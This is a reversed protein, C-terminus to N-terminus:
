AHGLSLRGPLAAAGQNLLVGTLLAYIMKSVPLELYPYYEVEPSNDNNADEPLVHARAITGFLGRVVGTFETATKGTASCIEYTNQYKIRLMIVSTSPLYSYSTGQPVADFGTTSYVTLTTDTAAAAVSLRTSAFTGIKQKLDSQLDSCSFDYLGLGTCLEVM